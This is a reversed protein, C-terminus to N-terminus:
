NQAHSHNAVTAWTVSGSVTMGDATTALMTGNAIGHNHGGSLGTSIGAKAITTWGFGDNLEPTGSVARFGKGDSAQIRVDGDNGLLIYAGHATIFQGTRSAGDVTETDYAMVAQATGTTDRFTIAKVGEVPATGMTIREFGFADYTHFGTSDVEVREGSALSRITASTMTVNGNTNVSFTNISGNNIVMGNGDLRIFAGATLDSRITVLNANLTGTDITEATLHTVNLSDLNLMLNTMEGVLTNVKTVIDAFSPDPKLKSFTPIPM